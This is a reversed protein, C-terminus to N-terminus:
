NSTNFNRKDWKENVLKIFEKKHRGIKFDREIDFKGSGILWFIKDIIVPEKGVVSGMKVIAKFVEYDDSTKTIGVGVFIDKLHVDPKGYQVYGVEKLFDCSLAFGYGFIEKELLMPLAAITFENYSFTNIFNEFDDLSEFNSLFKACSLVGKSYMVWANRPNEIDMKYTHRFKQKFDNFLAEWNDNYVDYVIKPDFESLIGHMEDIDAIFNTYGQKNKLSSIMKWFIENISSPIYKHYYELQLRLSDEDVRKELFNCAEYFVFELKATEGNSIM